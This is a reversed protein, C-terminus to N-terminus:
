VPVRRPMAVSATVAGIAFAVLAQAHAGRALLEAAVALWLLAVALAVAMAFVHAPGFGQHNDNM